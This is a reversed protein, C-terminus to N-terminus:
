APQDKTSTRKLELWHRPVYPPLMRSGKLDNGVIKVFQTKEFRDFTGGGIKPAITAGSNPLTAFTASNKCLCACRRRLPPRGKL